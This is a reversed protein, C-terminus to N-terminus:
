CTAQKSCVQCHHAEATWISWAIESAATRSAHLAQLSGPKSTQEKCISWSRDFWRPM